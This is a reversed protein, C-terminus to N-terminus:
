AWYIIDPRERECYTRNNKDYDINPNQKEGNYIFASSGGGDGNMLFKINGNTVEQSFEYVEKLTLGKQKGDIDRGTSVGVFYDGNETQGIFTRPNVSKGGINPDKNEDVYQGDVAIPYFTKVAWKPQLEEIKEEPTKGNNKKPNNYFYGLNGDKDMYLTTDHYNSRLKYLHVGDYLLGAGGGMYEKAKDKTYGAGTLSFNIALKAGNKQALKSPMESSVKGNSNTAVALKPQLEKPIIAYWVDTDAYRVIKYEIGEVDSLSQTSFSSTNESTYNIPLSEKNPVKLGTAGLKANCEGIQSLYSKYSEILTKLSTCIVKLGLINVRLEIVKNKANTISNIVRTKEEQSVINKKRELQTVEAETKKLQNVKNQLEDTKAKLTELDNYLDVYIGEASKYDISLFEQIRTINDTYINVNNVFNNVVSDVIETSLSKKLNNLNEIASELQICIYNAVSHNSVNLFAKKVNEEFIGEYGDYYNVYDYM